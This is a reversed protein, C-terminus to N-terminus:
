GLWRTLGKWVLMLGTGALFASGGYIAAQQGTTVVEHYQASHQTGAVGPKVGPHQHQGVNHPDMKHTEKQKQPIPQHGTTHTKDRRPQRKSLEPRHLGHAQYLEQLKKPDIRHTLPKPPVRSRKQKEQDEQEHVVGPEREM